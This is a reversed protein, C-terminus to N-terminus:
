VFVIIDLTKSGCTGLPPEQRSRKSRMMTFGLGLGQVRVRFGLGEKAVRLAEWIKTNHARSHRAM